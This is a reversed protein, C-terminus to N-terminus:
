NRSTKKLQKQKHSKHNFTLQKSTIMHFIEQKLSRVATNVSYVYVRPLDIIITERLHMNKLWLLRLADNDGICLQAYIKKSTHRRRDM